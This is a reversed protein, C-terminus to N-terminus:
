RRKRHAKPAKLSVSRTSTATNGAADHVTTVLKATLTGHALLSRAAASLKLTLKGSRGGAITFRVSALTLVRKRRKRGKGAVVAKSTQLVVTGACSAETAPCGLTLALSTAGKQAPKAFTLAPPTTDKPPPPPTIVPRAAVALDARAAASVDGDADTVRLRVTHAGATFSTQLTPGGVQFGSGTDWEYKVVTGDPDHSGSGDFTVTDGAFPTTSSTTFSAVPKQSTVVLDLTQEASAGDGDTVKVKVSVPGTHAFTTTADPSASPSTDYTGDGDLDWQWRLDGAPGDDTAAATLSVQQGKLPSGPDAQVSGPTIAPPQNDFGCGTGSAGFLKVKAYGQPAIPPGAARATWVDTGDVALLPAAPFQCTGTGGAGFRLTEAYGGGQQPSFRIVGYSDSGGSPAAAFTDLWVSGDAGVAVDASSAAAYIPHADSSDIEDLFTGTPSFHQVRGFTDEIVDTAPDDDFSDLAWVSGDRPDVALGLIGRGDVNPNFQGQGTGDGAGIENLKNGDKDFRVIALHTGAAGATGITGAVYVDGAGPSGAPVVAVALPDLLGTAKGTGDDVANGIASPAFFSQDHTGDLGLVLLDDSPPPPPDDPSPRDLEVVYVRRNASDVAGDLITSTFATDSAYTPLSSGAHTFPVIRFPFDLATNFDGVLEQHQQTDVDLFEPFQFAGQTTGYAGFSDSEGFSALASPAVAASLALAALVALLGTRRPSTM